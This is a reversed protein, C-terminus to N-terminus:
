AQNNSRLFALFEQGPHSLRKEDRYIVYLPLSIDLDRVPIVKLAKAAVLSHENVVSVGFNAKVAAKIAEISDFEMQVKINLKRKAFYAEVVSRNLRSQPQLIFPEEAFRELSVARKKALPNNTSAVAKMTIDRYRECSFGYPEVPRPLRSLCLEIQDEALLGCLEDFTGIKMIIESEPHLRKFTGLLSAMIYPGSTAGAGVRIRLLRKDALEQVDIESQKLTELLREAYLKAAKGADTMEVWRGRRDLLRTRYFTELKKVQLSLAPQSMHLHEAARSFSKLEAVALFAKMTFLHMM